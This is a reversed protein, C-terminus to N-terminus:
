YCRDIVPKVKATKLLECMAALDDQSPKALFTILKQSAFRSSVLAAFSGMMASLTHGRPPAVLIQKGKPDLVRRCTTFPRNGVCDFIVDYRRSNRTFDEQTYDIVSDAGISRGLELNRTSGGGTVDADFAKAIQVAFTGVGGAAGNILVRQGPQVC